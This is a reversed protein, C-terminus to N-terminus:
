GEPSWAEYDGTVKAREGGGTSSLTYTIAAWDGGVIAPGCHATDFETMAEATYTGAADSGEYREGTVGDYIVVDDTLGAVMVDVDRPATWAECYARAVAEVRDPDPMVADRARVVEEVEIGEDASPESEAVDSSAQTTTTSAPTSFESSAPDTTTAANDDNTSDDGDSCSVVIFMALTLALSVAITTRLRTRM